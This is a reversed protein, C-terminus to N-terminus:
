PGAEAAAQHKRKLVIFYGETTDPLLEWQDPHDRYEPVQDPRNIKSYKHQTDIVIYDTDPPVGPQYNNVARPYDSYDYSRQFHTFRPHVFDTSAVRATQDPIEELVRPFLEARKGVVYLDRWYFGSDPDWFGISLPGLGYFLGTMLACVGAFRAWWSVRSARVHSVAPHRKVWRRWGLGRSVSGLGAAASWLLIPVAAAHVHHLPSDIVENLCLTLFLPLAVALRGPSLLPLFGLPALLMLAYEASHANVFAEWLRAPHTVMTQAIEPLTRGFKSFYSAYHIEQGHRFHAMVVRTAVILYVVSFVAFGLGFVVVRWNARLSALPKSAGGPPSDTSDSGPSEEPTDPRRRSFAFAIWVGLPALVVAYDEQASLAIAALLCFTKFRRRELQDLAFLLFPIGLGNPRFTKLDIAIDLFQLPFYLLCAAALWVAARAQGSHRRAIWYVPICSAALLASDCLELLMQSPWLLYLPILMLHIVQVHEGLFIGQDLYSRFGKGHLLNWLHEEYMASDGHPLRLSRYLQWNMAVFAVVYAALCLCVTLPIWYDDSLASKAPAGTESALEESLDQGSGPKAAAVTLFTAMWGAVGTAIWFSASSEVFLQWENIGLAVVLLRVIEWSGGAVWWFWGYSGWTAAAAAFSIQARHSIWWAGALWTIVSVAALFLFIPAFPPVDPEVTGSLSAPNGSLWGEIRGILGRSALADAAVSSGLM